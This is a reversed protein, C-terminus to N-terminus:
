FIGWKNALYRQIQIRGFTNLNNAVIIIEALEGSFYSSGVNVKGIFYSGPSGSGADGTAIIVGDIILTSLATGLFLCSSYHWSTNSTGKGVLGVAGAYMNYTGNNQDFNGRDNNGCLIRRDGSTTGFRFAVFVNYISTTIGVSPTTLFDSTGDFSIVNLGNRTVTGTTPQNTANGQTAHRGNGSLDNWQSVSGSSETISSTNSADLWLVPSLSLPSFNAWSSVPTSVKDRQMNRTRSGPRVGM